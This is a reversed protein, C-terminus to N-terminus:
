SRDLSTLMCQFYGFHARQQQAETSVMALLRREEWEKSACTGSATTGKDYVHLGNWIPPKDWEYLESEIHTIKIEKNEM